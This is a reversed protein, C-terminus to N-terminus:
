SPLCHAQPSDKGNSDTRQRTIALASPLFEPKGPDLTQPRWWVGSLDPKGDVTRPTPGSPPKHRKMDAIQHTRDEGLTNLQTTDGLRIDLSATQSAQVAVGKKEYPRLGPASASVDYAGPPLDALTYKGTASTTAKFVAGSAVNKAQVANNDIPDGISDFLTGSISGSGTPATSQALAAWCLVLTLCLSNKM